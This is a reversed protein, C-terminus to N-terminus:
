SVRVLKKVKPSIGRENTLGCQFAILKFDEDLAVAKLLPAREIATM